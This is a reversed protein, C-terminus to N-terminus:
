WRIYLYGKMNLVAPHRYPRIDIFFSFIHLNSSSIKNESPSLTLIKVNETRPFNFQSSGMCRLSGPHSCLVLLYCPFYNERPSYQIDLFNSKYISYMIFILCSKMLFRYPKRKFIKILFDGDLIAYTNMHEVIDTKGNTLSALFFLEKILPLVLEQLKPM